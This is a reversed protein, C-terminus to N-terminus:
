KTPSVIKAMLQKTMMEQLEKDRASDLSILTNKGVKRAKLVGLDVLDQIDAEILNPSVGIKRSVGEIHDILNPNKHFLIMIEVKNTSSLLRDFLEDGGVDPSM